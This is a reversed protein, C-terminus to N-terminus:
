EIGKANVILWCVKEKAGHKKKDRKGQEMRVHNNPHQRIFLYCEVEGDWSVGPVCNNEALFVSESSSRKTLCHTFAELYVKM